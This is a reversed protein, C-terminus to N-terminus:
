KVKTWIRMGENGVAVIVEGGLGVSVGEIRVGHEVEKDGAEGARDALLSSEWKLDWGIGHHWPKGSGNGNGAAVGSGGRVVSASRSGARMGDLAASTERSAPNSTSASASALRMKGAQKTVDLVAGDTEGSGERDRDNNASTTPLHIPRLKHQPLAWAPILRISATTTTPKTTGSQTTTTNNTDAPSPLPQPESFPILFLPPVPNHPATHTYTTLNLSSPSTLPLSLTALKSFSVTM